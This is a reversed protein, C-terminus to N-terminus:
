VEEGNQNKEKLLKQVKGEIGNADEDGVEAPAENDSRNLNSNRLENAAPDESPKYGMKTRIENSSLIENRTLKDAIEAISSVPILRFPDRFYKIAQGQSRATSSIFKRQMEDSIASLIPDVTRNYYNIMEEEKATGNLVSETLGLQNYLMTTLDKVQGWLNNEVARNLQTIRETGDTYAIGYKTGSLQREIDRRRQEAQQRRAESKIVYPLQIILDLKGSSSQEDVYDLLNIKRILRQLISNPENMIAFLPNEIIAVQNKPLLLEDRRGLTENYVDVKVRDALWNTVRGTRLKLIDYDASFYPNASCDTPVLAVHGEDFMSMVIDIVFARGTQDLNASLSLCNELGSKRVEKFNGEKDCQVHHIDIMACDLAIRNYIASVISRENGRTLRIRDPRMSGVSGYYDYYRTPERSLFANWANQLRETFKPM